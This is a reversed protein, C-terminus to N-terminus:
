PQGKKLAQLKYWCMSVPAAPPIIRWVECMGEEGPANDRRCRGYPNVDTPTMAPWFRDCGQCYNVATLRATNAVSPIRYTTRQTIPQTTPSTAPPAAPPVAGAQGRSGPKLNRFSLIGPQQKATREPATTEVRVPKAEAQTSTTRVVDAAGKTEQPTNGAQQPKLHKFSLIGM